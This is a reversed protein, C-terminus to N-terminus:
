FQFAKPKEFGPMISTTAADFAEKFAIADGSRRYVGGKSVGGERVITALRGGDKLQDLLKDPRREIAGGLFILDFPGQEAVGDWPAGAIVAANDIDLGTLNEQAKAALAEDADLSVVM